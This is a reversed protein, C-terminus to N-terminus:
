EGQSMALFEDRNAIVNWCSLNALLHTQKPNLDIVTPLNQGFTRYHPFNELSGRGIMARIEYPLQQEWAPVRENYVWLVEVQWGGPIGYRENERVQYRDRFMVTKGARQAALLGEVLTDYQSSPFVHNTEFGPTLGFLPPLSTNIQGLAGSVLKDKTNIFVIIREVRRALLPMLGLNELIGGDGVVYEQARRPNIPSWYKFEPFGLWDLRLRALEEAPAACSGGIADSLTYRYRSMGLHVTVRQSGNVFISPADSDFGFPEVYGGGIDREDAGAERHLTRAGVYLPTSEFPIRKPRPAQNDTRLILSNVILYPRGPRVQYFDDARMHPNHELITSVADRDFSFFRQLSNLGFPSLFVDGLARSYTEDGSLWAARKIFDDALISNSIVHAFSNPDTRRLGQLTLDQPPLVAGLFVEDNWALPLYCFATNILSSGSVCSIYRAQELLGLHNM